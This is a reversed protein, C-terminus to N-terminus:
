RGLAEAAVDPADTVFAWLGLAALQQMRLPDNVVYCGVRRGLATAQMMLYTPDLGLDGDWPLVGIHGHEVAYRMGREISDSPVLLLGTALTPDLEDAENISAEDFSIVTVEGARGVRSDRLAEVTAPVAARAKIEVALGVGDPLWDLVEPLTPVHLGQDAFTGEGFNAGANLGRIQEMTMTAVAGSGSTTRDVSEDHIVALQGDATLHVDLEIADAKQQLGLEYAAFTNEPAHASAGRHAVILTM